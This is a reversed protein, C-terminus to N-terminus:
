IFSIKRRLYSKWGSHWEKRNAGVFHIGSPLKSPFLRTDEAIHMKSLPVLFYDLDTVIASTLGQEDYGGLSDSLHKSYEEIKTYFDFNPPLGFFGACVHVKPDIVSDFVGFMRKRHLGESIISTNETEIWNDIESMRELIILDNDIWLEHSDIRLRPPALKWGCGSAEEPNSSGPTLRCPVSSEEQCILDAFKSLDMIDSKDINNYCVCRDFEPYVKSFLKVSEKLIDHGICNVPGITWRVLPKM